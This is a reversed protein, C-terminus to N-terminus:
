LNGCVGSDDEEEEEEEEDEDEGERSRSRSTLDGRNEDHRGGGGAAM